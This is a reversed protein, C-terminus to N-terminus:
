KRGNQVRGTSLDTPVVYPRDKYGVRTAKINYAVKLLEPGDFSYIKVMGDETVEASIRGPDASGMPTCLVRYTGPESMLKFEYPLEGEGYGSELKLIGCYEVMVEPSETCAFRIDMDEMEPHPVRFDKVGMVELDGQIEADGEVIIDMFGTWPCSFYSGDIALNITAMTETPDWIEISGKSLNGGVKLECAYPYTAHNTITLGDNGYSNVVKVAGPTSDSGVKLTSDCKCGDGGGCPETCCDPCGITVGHAGTTITIPADGLIEFNNEPITPTAVLNVKQIPVRQAPGGFATILSGNQYMNIQGISTLVNFLRRITDGTDEFIRLDGIGILAASKSTSDSFGIVGAALTDQSDTKGRVGYVKGSTVAAEGFVGSADKGNSITLGHVGYVMGSSVFAQGYVGASNDGTSSINGSVGYVTATYSLAKGHVGASFEGAAETVGQVGYGVDSGGTPSAKGFIGSSNNAKTFGFIGDGIHTTSNWYGKFVARTGGDDYPTGEYTELRGVSLLDATVPISSKIKPGTASAASLSVAVEGSATKVNIKGDHSASGVTLTSDCTCSGGSGCTPCGITVGHAGNTVTIPSEGAITFNNDPITPTAVSNVKQIPVRQAAGGFATILEGNQYINIVGTSTVAKLLPRISFPEGPNEYIGFDGIGMLAASGNSGTGLVGASLTDSSGASGSVGYIQGTTSVASGHVGVGENSHSYGAVGYIQGNSATADGRVGSSFAGESRTLGRVGFSTGYTDIPIAKGYVGSQGNSSSFGLIGDGPYTQSDWYGKLAAKSGGDDYPTGEYAELRAVSLLESSASITSKLKPGTTNAATIAAAIEGAPTKVLIEGAHEASGVILTSDCKCPTGCTPCGINVGHAGTTVTIPNLGTINFNNEGGSTPTATTNVKQIARLNQTGGFTIIDETDNAIRVANDLINVEFPTYSEDLSSVSLNGFCRLGYDGDDYAQALVGVGTHNNSYGRVGAGDASSTIGTVGYLKGSTAEIVEGFVGSSYDAGSHIKGHVGYVINSSPFDTTNTGYVGASSNGSSHNIKGLVGYNMGSGVSFGMVGSVDNTNSHAIGVVGHAVGITNTNISKIGSANEASNIIRIGQNSDANATMKIIETGLVDRLVIEGNEATPLMMREAEIFGGESIDMARLMRMSGDGGLLLPNPVIGESSIRIKNSDAVNTIVINDGEELMLNSSGDPGVSNITSIIAESAVSEAVSAVIAYPTATIMVRPLLTDGDVEIELWYQGDFALDIPTIWGLVVSFLGHEVFVENVGDHTETWLADGETELNFLKFTMPVIGNIGVGDIDTLRGQYNMTRPIQAILLPCHTILLAVILFSYFFLKTKPNM